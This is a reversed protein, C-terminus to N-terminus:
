YSYAMSAPSPISGRSPKNLCDISYVNGDHPQSLIFSSSSTYIGVIQHLVPLILLRRDACRVSCGNQLTLQQRARCSLVSQSVSKYELLYQARSHFRFIIVLYHSRVSIGTRIKRNVQRMRMKKSKKGSNLLKALLRKIM